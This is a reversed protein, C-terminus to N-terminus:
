FRIKLGMEPGRVVSEGLNEQKYGAFLELQKLCYGVSAAYDNVNHGNVRALGIRIDAMVPPFPAIELEFGILPGTGIDIIKRAGFKFELSGSEDTLINLIAAYSHINLNSEHAMFTESLTLYHYEFGIGTFIKLKLGISKGKIDNFGSFTSIDGVIYVPRSQPPTKIFLGKEYYPYPAYAYAFAEPITRLLVDFVFEGWVGDDEHSSEQENKKKLDEKAKELKGPPKEVNTDKKKDDDRPPKEEAPAASFLLISSLALASLVRM